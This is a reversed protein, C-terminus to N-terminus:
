YVNEDKFNNFIRNQDWIINKVFLDLNSIKIVM